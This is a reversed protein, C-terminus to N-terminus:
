PQGAAGVRNNVEVVGWHKAEGPAYLNVLDNVWANKTFTKASPHYAAATFM